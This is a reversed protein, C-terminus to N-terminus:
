CSSSCATSISGRRDWRAAAFILAPLALVSTLLLMLASLRDLVLVIGFPAPWNGLLYLGVETGGSPRRRGRDLLAFAIIPLLGAAVLSIIRKARRDEYFLM